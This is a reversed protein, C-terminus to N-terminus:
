RQQNRWASAYSELTTGAWAFFAGLIAVLVTAALVREMEFHQQAAIMYTGIGTGSGMLYEAGFSAMWSYLLAVRLGSFVAPTISPFLLYKLQQTQNLRFIDAVEVHQNSLNEVGKWTSIYLPFFTAISIFIVKATNDVGGWATIFPIWAFIAILRLVNLMPSFLGNLTRNLGLVIGTLIGLGGGIVLGLLARYITNHLAISISGDKLGTILTEFVLELAPLVENSVWAWQGSVWWLIALSVPLILKLLATSWLGTEKPKVLATLASNPWRIIGKELRNFIQDLAVGILAIVAICVFVIDLQFLQRGQVMLYGIGESSAMLEVAILTTWSAAIALRLGTLFAPLTAPLILKYLKQLVTLRLTLAVEKLQPQIDRVGSHTHIVIPILTAKFILFVKLANEIGLWMMLIPLWALTPILSLAYFIPSVLKDALTNYGLAIGILFGAIIGAILGMFLRQLSIAVHSLLDAQFLELARQAVDQPSPLIQAPMWQAESAFWWLVFIAFPVLWPRLLESLKANLAIIKQLVTSHQKEEVLTQSITKSM